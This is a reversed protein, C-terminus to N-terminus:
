FFFLLVSSSVVSSSSLSRRSRSHILRRVNRLSMSRVVDEIGEAGLGVSVLASVYVDRTEGALRDDLVREADHAGGQLLARLLAILETQSEDVDVDM